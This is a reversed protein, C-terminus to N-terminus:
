NAFFYLLHLAKKCCHDLSQPRYSASVVSESINRTRQKRGLKAAVGNSHGHGGWGGEVTWVQDHQQQSYHAAQVHGNQQQQAHEGEGEEVEADLSIDV